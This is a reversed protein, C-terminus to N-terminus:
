ATNYKLKFTGKLKNTQFFTPERKKGPAGVAAGVNHVEERGWGAHFLLEWLLRMTQGGSNDEGIPGAGIYVREGLHLIKVLRIIKDGRNM